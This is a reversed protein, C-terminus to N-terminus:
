GLISRRFCMSCSAISLLHVFQLADEVDRGLHLHLQQGDEDDEDEQDADHRELDDEVEVHVDLEHVPRSFQLLAKFHRHLYNLNTRTFIPRM